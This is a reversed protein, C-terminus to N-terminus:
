RRGSNLVPGVWGLGPVHVALSPQETPDLEEWERETWVRVECLTDGVVCYIPEGPRKAKLEEESTWSLKFPTAM